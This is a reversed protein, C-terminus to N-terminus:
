ICADQWHCFSVFVAWASETCCMLPRTNNQHLKSNEEFSM